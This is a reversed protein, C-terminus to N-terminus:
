ERRQNNQTKRRSNNSLRRASLKLINKIKTNVTFSTLLKSITKKFNLLESPRSGYVAYVHRGFETETDDRKIRFYGNKLFVDFNEKIKTRLIDFIM